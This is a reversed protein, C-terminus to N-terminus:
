DFSIRTAGADKAIGLIKFFDPYYTGGVTHIHIILKDNQALRKELATKLDSIDLREGEILIKGGPLAIVFVVNEEPMEALMDMNDDSPLVLPLGTAMGSAFIVKNLGRAVLVDRVAMVADMRLGSGVSLLVVIGESREGVIEDLTEGLGEITTAAGDVTIEKESEVLVEIKRIVKPMESLATRGNAEVAGEPGAKSCYWSLPLILLFLGALISARQRRTTLKMKGEKLQYQIRDLLRNGPGALATASGWAVPNTVSREAIDVLYKSYEVSDGEPGGIAEDDCAMERYQNMRRNLLWVLPNFFYAAQAIVQLIQVLGDLRRIHALEHRIVMEKCRDTWGDWAAPVFISRSLLGLTLPLAIRESRFIDIERRDGPKIVVSGVRGACALRRRLRATSIVTLAVYIVVFAAWALLLLGPLNLGLRGGVATGTVKTAPVSAVPSIVASLLSPGPSIPTAVRLPVFPPLLLKVLGIMCLTYRLHASRHRLLHIAVLIFGLFATNQLVALGFYGAWSSGWHNVLDIM